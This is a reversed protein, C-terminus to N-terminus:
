QAKSRMRTAQDYTKYCIEKKFYLYVIGTSIDHISQNLFQSMFGILENM